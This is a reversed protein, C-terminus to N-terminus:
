GRSARHAASLVAEAAAILRTAAPDDPGLTRPEAGPATLRVRPGRSPGSPRGVARGLRARLAGIRASM